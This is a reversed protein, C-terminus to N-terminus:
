HGFGEWHPQLFDKGSLFIEMRTTKLGEEEYTMRHCRTVHSYPNVKVHPMPVPLDASLGASALVGEETYISQAKTGEDM